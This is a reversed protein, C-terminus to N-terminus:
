SRNLLQSGIAKRIEDRQAPRNGEHSPLGLLKLGNAYTPSSEWQRHLGKEHLLESLYHHLVSNSLM